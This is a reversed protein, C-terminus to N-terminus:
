QFVIMKKDGFQANLDNDKRQTIIFRHPNGAGLMPENKEDIFCQHLELQNKSPDEKTIILCGRLNKQPLNMKFWKITEELTLEPCYKEEYNWAMKVTELNINKINRLIKDITEVTFDVGKKLLNGFQYNIDKIISNCDVVEREEKM